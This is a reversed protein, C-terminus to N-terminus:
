FPYGLSFHYIVAPDTFTEDVSVYRARKLPFGVDIRFPGFPTDLRLGTGVSYRYDWLKTSEPDNPAGPISHLRFSKLRIDSIAAWVDLRTMRADSGGAISTSVPVVRSALCDSTSLWM